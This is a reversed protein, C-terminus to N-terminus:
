ARQSRFNQSTNHKKETLTNNTHMDDKNALHWILSIQGLNQFTSKAKASSYRFTKAAEKM